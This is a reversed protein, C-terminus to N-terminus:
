AAVNMTYGNDIILNCRYDQCLELTFSKPEGGISSKLRRRRFSEFFLSLKVLRKLMQQVM